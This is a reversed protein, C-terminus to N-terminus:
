CTQCLTDDLADKIEQGSQGRSKKEAEALIEEAAPSQIEKMREVQEMHIKAGIEDGARRLTAIAPKYASPIGSWHNGHWDEDEYSYAGSRGCSQTPDPEWNAIVQRESASLGRHFAALREWPKDDDLLTYHMVSACNTGFHEELKTIRWESSHFTTAERALNKSPYWERGQVTYSPFADNPPRCRVAVISKEGGGIGSIRKLTVEMRKPGAMGEDEESSLESCDEADIVSQITEFAENQSEQSTEYTEAELVGDSKWTLATIYYNSLNLSALTGDIGESYGVTIYRGGSSVPDNVGVIFARFGAGPTGVDRRRILHVELNIELM